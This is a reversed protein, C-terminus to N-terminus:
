QFCHIIIGCVCRKWSKWASIFLMKKQLSSVSLFYKCVVFSFDSHCAIQSHFHVLKECKSTHQQKQVTVVLSCCGTHNFRPTFQINVLKKDDRLVLVQLGNRVVVYCIARWFDRSRTNTKNGPCAYTGSHLNTTEKEVRKCSVSLNHKHFPFFQDM